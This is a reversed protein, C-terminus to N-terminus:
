LSRIVKKIGRKVKKLWLTTYWKTQFIVRHIHALYLNEGDYVPLGRNEHRQREIPIEEGLFRALKEGTDGNEWCIVLFDQGTAQFFDLVEKQFKKYFDIHEEKRGHPMSYGYIYKEFIKFPGMRVAMQCYSRYWIEPSKRQTLIFKADPYRGSLEKYMLPWPWDEVSDWEELENLLEEIRGERYKGFAIADYSRNRYGWDELYSVLTKTGTKPLGVGIVKHRKREM